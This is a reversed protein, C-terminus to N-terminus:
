RGPNPLEAVIQFWPQTYDLVIEGKLQQVIRGVAGLGFGHEAKPEKTTEIRGDM